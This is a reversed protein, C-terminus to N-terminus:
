FLLGKLLPVVEKMNHEEVFDNWCVMEPEYWNYDNEDFDLYAEDVIINYYDVEMLDNAYLWAFYMLKEKTMYKVYAENDKNLELMIDMCMDVLEPDLKSLEFKPMSLVHDEREKYEKLKEKM